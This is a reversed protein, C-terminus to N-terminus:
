ADYTSNHIRRERLSTVIAKLALSSSITKKIYLTVTVYAKQVHEKEKNLFNPGKYLM